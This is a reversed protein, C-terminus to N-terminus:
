LVHSLIIGILAGASLGVSLGNVWCVMDRKTTYERLDRM